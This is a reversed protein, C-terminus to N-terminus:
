QHTSPYTPKQGDLLAKSNEPGLTLVENVAALEDTYNEVKINCV